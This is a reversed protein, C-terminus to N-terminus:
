LQVQDGSGLSMVWEPYSSRGLFVWPAWQVTYLCPGLAVSCLQLSWRSRGQPWHTEGQIRVRWDSIDAGGSVLVINDRAIIVMLSLIYSLSLPLVVKDEEFHNQSVQSRDRWLFEFDDWGLSGISGLSPYSSFPWRYGFLWKSNQCWRVSNSESNLVNM